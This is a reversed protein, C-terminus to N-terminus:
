HPRTTLDGNDLFLLTQDDSDLRVYHQKLFTQEATLAFDSNKGGLRWMVAGSLRNIKIVQNLNRFSCIINNDRPNIFILNMHMFDMPKVSDSFNKSEVSAGYFEPYDTGDWQFIVKGNNVEQILCAIVAAKPSPHLSDPINTPQELRESITMYHADGLLIFDHLDLKDYDATDIDKFPLLQETNLVNFNTDCIYDYGEETGVGDITYDGRTQFYTYNIVGNINWKQFNEVKLGTTKEKIVNGKEDLIALVGNTPTNFAVFIEGKDQGGSGSVQFLTTDINTTGITETKNKQCRWNGIGLLILSAFVISKYITM